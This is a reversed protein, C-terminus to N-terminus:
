KRTSKSRRVTTPADNKKTRMKTILVRLVLEICFWVACALVGLAVMILIEVM